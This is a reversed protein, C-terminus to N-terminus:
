IRARSIQGAECPLLDRAALCSRGLKEIEPVATRQKEQQRRLSRVKLELYGWIGFIVVAVVVTAILIAKLYSRLIGESSTHASPSPGADTTRTEEGTATPVVEEGPHTKFTGLEQGIM